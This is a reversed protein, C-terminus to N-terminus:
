NDSLTTPTASVQRSHYGVNDDAKRQRERWARSERAERAAVRIAIFNPDSLIRAVEPDASGPRPNSQGSM